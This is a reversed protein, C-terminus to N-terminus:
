GRRGSPRAARPWPGRSRAVAGRRFREIRAGDIRRAGELVHIAAFGEGRLRDTALLRTMRDHQAVVVDEGVRRGPRGADRGIAEDRGVALVIAIAPLAADAALRLLDRRARQDLNTADVLTLRGTLLRGAVARHLAAFVAGDRSRDAADGAIVARLADSSVIEDGAFRRQAFTSKGAGAPGILVVLSPDPIRLPEDPPAMERHHPM